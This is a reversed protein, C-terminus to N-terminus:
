ALHIKYLSVNAYLKKYNTFNNTLIEIMKIEQTIIEHGSMMNVHEMRNKLWGRYLEVLIEVNGPSKLKFV